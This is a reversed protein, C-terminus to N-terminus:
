SISSGLGGGGSLGPPCLSAWSKPPAGGGDLKSGEGIFFRRMVTLPAGCAKFVSTLAGASWVLEVGIEGTTMPNVICLSLGDATSCTLDIIVTFCFCFARMSCRLPLTAPTMDGLMVALLGEGAGTSSRMEEVEFGGETGTRM